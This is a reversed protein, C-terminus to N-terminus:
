CSKRREKKRTCLTRRPRLMRKLRKETNIKRKARSRAKSMRQHQIKYPRRPVRKENSESAERPVIELMMCTFNRRTSAFNLLSRTLLLLSCLSISVGGSCSLMGVALRPDQGVVFDRKTKCRRRAGCAFGCLSMCFFLGFSQGAFRFVEHWDYLWIPFEDLIM